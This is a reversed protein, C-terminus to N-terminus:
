ELSHNWQFSNREIIASTKNKKLIFTAECRHQPVWVNIRCVSGSQLQNSRTLTDSFNVHVSEVDTNSFIIGM